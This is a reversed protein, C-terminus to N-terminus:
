KTESKTFKRKLASDILSSIVLNGRGGFTDRMNILIEKSAGHALTLAANALDVNTCVMALADIEKQTIERSALQELEKKLQAFNERLWEFWTKKACHDALKLLLKEDVGFERAETEITMKIDTQLLERAEEKIKENRETEM